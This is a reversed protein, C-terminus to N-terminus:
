IIKPTWWKGTICISAIIRGVSFVSLNTTEDAGTIVIGVHGRVYNVGPQNYNAAPAPTGADDM